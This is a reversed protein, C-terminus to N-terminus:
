CLAYYALGDASPGFPGRLPTVSLVLLVSTEHGGSCRSAPVARRKRQRAPHIGSVARSLSTCSTVADVSLSLDATVFVNISAIQEGCFMAAATRATTRLM